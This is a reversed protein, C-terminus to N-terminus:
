RTLTEDLNLVQSAVLTWAALEVVDAEKPVPTSGTALFERAADPKDEFETFFESHSQRLTAREDAELVRNILLLTIRDLRPDFDSADNMARWALHRCAEVFQPDNLLVLAQLPTNTQERAVCTVERTPANFIEMSPPPATRKWITYISRRFLKDDKDQMYFRTNSQPMAVASWIGKPQYPKVPPGGLEEVLLGSAALALDRIQEGDLRHRPGRSLLSNDSDKELKEANVHGSQRYAMSTVMLKVMHRYDWGSDVFEAALWDLLKPHTPRAGMVGFDGNTEVIGKGFIHSWARNMTVRAPLPNAPDNLWQALGLRNHPAGEPMPPLFEPTAAGVKEGKDTYQGRGLIHAFPESDKEEMVLSMSGRQKIENMERDLPERKALIEASAFDVYNLYYDFVKESQDKNWKDRPTNLIGAIQGLSALRTIEDQSLIRRYFRFDQLAVKGGTLKNEGGARSGLILPVEAVIDGGVTNPDAGVRARQGDIYLSTSQHGSKRGDFTVMFHHWKKAPIGRGRRIKNAADPWADIIHTTPKDGDLFLDWGRLRQAPDMRSVIAGNPNGEYYIYGGFSVPEDREFAAHDGLVIPKDSIVPAKGLPGDIREIDASWELRQDKSYGKIPGHSENLPLYFELAADRDKSEVLSPSKSWHEFAPKAEARRAQLAKDLKAIEEKLVPYRQRDEMLPVFISPPHNANNRDMAHMTTNRFFAAMSYFDKMTIPDFKHDHCSACGTTLGLWGASVTDVQDKAYIAEYEEAIAGGEGTTAMCRNFGSAVKQDLSSGPLLDGAIQETTFQDWPMNAAFARIVWDRYPWIARYNDIHIGHTDAYRAVDLWLRAFHEASADSALLRDAEASVAAEGDREYARIFADTEAPAPPLGTLDFALRRHYRRLDDAPNPELGHEDLKAAIFRDIPNAAWGEGAEPAEPRKVPGFSWHAEYEAGQEIWREILAIEQSDMQKHSEPPPMILDIDDSMMRKIILSDEPKGKIIVPKGDDRLAFAHEEIDLRLPAQEPARTGADPGHCHYCYESLIPQVHENFSVLEPLKNAPSLEEVETTQPAAEELESTPASSDCAALLLCLPLLLAGFLLAGFRPQPSIM